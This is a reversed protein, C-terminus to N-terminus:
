GLKRVVVDITAVVGIKSSVLYWDRGRIRFHAYGRLGNYQRISM